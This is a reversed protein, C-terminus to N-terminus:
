LKEYEKEIDEPREEGCGLVSRLQSFKARIKLWQGTSIEEGMETALSDRCHIYNKEIEELIACNDKEEAMKGLAGHM